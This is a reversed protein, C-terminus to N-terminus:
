VDQVYLEFTRLISFFNPHFLSLANHTSASVGQHIDILRKLLVIHEYLAAANAEVAITTYTEFAAKGDIIVSTSDHACHQPTQKL